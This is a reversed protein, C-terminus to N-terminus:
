GGCQDIVVGDDRIVDPTLLDREEHEIDQLLAAALTCFRSAVESADGGNKCACLSDIEALQRAHEEHLMKARWPGVPLDDELIPMLLAEEDALHKVFTRRTLGVLLRLAGQASRDGAVAAGVHRLGAALLQRLELHQDLARRLAVSATARPVAPGTQPSATM